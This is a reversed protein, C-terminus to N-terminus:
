SSKGQQVFARPRLSLSQECSSHLFLQERGSASCEGGADNQGPPTLWRGGMNPAEIHVAPEDSLGPPQDCVASVKETQAATRGHAGSSAKSTTGSPEGEGQGTRTEM